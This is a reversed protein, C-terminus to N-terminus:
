KERDTLIHGSTASKRVAVIFVKKQCQIHKLTYILFLSFPHIIYIGSVAQPKAVGEM